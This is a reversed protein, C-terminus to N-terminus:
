LSYTDYFRELQDVVLEPYIVRQGRTRRELVRDVIMDQENNENTERQQYATDRNAHSFNIEQAFLNYNAEFTKPQNRNRKLKTSKRLM